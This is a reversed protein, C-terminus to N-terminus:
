PKVREDKRAAQGFYGHALNATACNLRKVREKFQPFSLQCPRTHRLIQQELYFFSFEPNVIESGGLMSVVEYEWSPGWNDTEVPKVAIIGVITGAPLTFDRGNVEIVTERRLQRLEGRKFGPKPRPV